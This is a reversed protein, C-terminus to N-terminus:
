LLAQLRAINPASEASAPSSSAVRQRRAAARAARSRCSRSRGLSRSLRARNSRERARATQRWPARRPSM